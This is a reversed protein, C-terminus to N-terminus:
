KLYTIIIRIEDNGANTVALMEDDGWAATGAKFDRKETKGDPATMVFHADTLFYISRQPHKKMPSVSGPPYRKEFVKVKPVDLLTTETAAPANDASVAAIGSLLVVAVIVKASAGFRYVRMAKEM